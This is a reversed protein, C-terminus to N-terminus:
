NEVHINYRNGVQFIIESIWSKLLTASIFGKRIEVEGVCKISFIEPTEDSFVSVLSM